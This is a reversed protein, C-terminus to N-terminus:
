EKRGNENPTPSESQKTSEQENQNPNVSLLEPNSVACGVVISNSVTFEAGEMGQQKTFINVTFCGKRQNFQMVGRAKIYSVPMGEVIFAPVDCEIVDAEWIAGNKANQGTCLMPVFEGQLEELRGDEEHKIIPLQAPSIGAGYIMQKNAKDWFRVDYRLM